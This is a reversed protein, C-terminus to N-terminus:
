VTVPAARPLPAREKGGFWPTTGFKARASSERFCRFRGYVGSIMFSAAIKERDEDGGVGGGPPGHLRCLLRSSHPRADSGDRLRERPLWPAAAISSSACEFMRWGDVGARCRSGIRRSSPTFRRSKCGRGSGVSHGSQHAAHACFSLLCACRRPQKAFRRCRDDCGTGSPDDLSVPKEPASRIRM